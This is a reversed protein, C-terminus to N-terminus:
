SGFTQLAPSISVRWRPRGVQSHGWDNFNDNQPVGAQAAAEFFLDHLPNTYRPDEVRM